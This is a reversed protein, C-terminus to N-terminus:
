SASGRSRVLWALFIGLEFLIILPVAVMAQNVYDITPTILAGLILAAIPVYKRVRKFQMHSVIRMKALLLMVIPTEFVIGIWFLMALALDMYEGIRIMPTAIEAGFQLLFELGVPLLVFYAFATGGMYFSVGLGMFLLVTRRQQKDLLPRALSYVSYALVPLAAVIGGKIAMGITLSFMETPGTYIPQGSTSLSDGAPALLYGFVEARYLWTLAAGIGFALLTLLLRYLVGRLVRRSRPMVEKM